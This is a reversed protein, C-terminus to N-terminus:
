QLEEVNDYVSTYELMVGEMDTDTVLRELAEKSYATIYYFTSHTPKNGLGDSAILFCGFEEVAEAMEAVTELGFAQPTIPNLLIYKPKVQFTPVATVKTMPQNMMELRKSLKNAHPQNQYTM